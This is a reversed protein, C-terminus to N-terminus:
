LHEVNLTIAFKELPTSRLVELLGSGFGADRFDRAIALATQYDHQEVATDFMEKKQEM